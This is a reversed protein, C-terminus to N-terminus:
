EQRARNAVSKVASKRNELAEDGGGPGEYLIHGIVRRSVGRETGPLSARFPAKIFQRAEKPPASSITCHFVQIAARASPDRKSRGKIGTEKARM